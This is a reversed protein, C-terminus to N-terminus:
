IQRCRVPSGWNCIAGVPDFSLARPCTHVWGSIPELEGRGPGRACQVFKRCDEPYAFNGIDYCFVRGDEDIEVVNGNSNQGVPAGQIVEADGTIDDQNATRPRELSPAASTPVVPRRAFDDGIPRVVPAPIAIVIPARPPSTTIPQRSVSVSSASSTPRARSNLPRRRTVVKRQTTTTTTTPLTSTTPVPTTTTTTTTTTSTSTIPLEDAAFPDILEDEFGFIDASEPETPYEFPETDVGTDFIEAASTSSTEASISNFKISHNSM